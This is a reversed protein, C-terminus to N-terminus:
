TYKRIRSPVGRPNPLDAARTKAREVGLRYLRDVVEPKPAIFRYPNPSDAPLHDEFIRLGESNREIEGLDIPEPRPTFDHIGQLWREAGGLPIRPALQEVWETARSAGSLVARAQRRVYDGIPRQYLKGKHTCDVIFFSELGLAPAIWAPVNDSWAGDILVLDDFRVPMGTFPPIRTSALVAKKLEEPSTLVRWGEPEPRAADAPWPKTSFYCPTLLGSAGAASLEAIRGAVDLFSVDEGGLSRQVGDALVRFRDGWSESARRLDVHTAVIVIMAPSAYAKEWNLLKQDELIGELVARYPLEWRGQLPNELFARPRLDETFKRSFRLALDHDLPEGTGAVVAALSGSSSGIVVRFPSEWGLARAQLSLEVVYGAQFANKMAEGTVLLGANPVFSSM